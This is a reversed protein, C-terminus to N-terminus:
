PAKVFIKKWKLKQYVKEETNRLELVPKNLESVVKYYYYPYKLIINSM